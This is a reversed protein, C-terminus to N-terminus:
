ATVAPVPFASPPPLNVAAFTARGQGMEPVRPRIMSRQEPESM